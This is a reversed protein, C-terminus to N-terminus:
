LPDLLCYSNLVCLPMLRYSCICNISKNIDSSGSLLYRFRELGSRSEPTTRCLFVRGIGKCGPNMLFLLRCGPQVEFGYQAHQHCWVGVKIRTFIQVCKTFSCYRGTAIRYYHKNQLGEMSM